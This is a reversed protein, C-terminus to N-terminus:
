LLFDGSSLVQGALGALVVEMDAIGDGNLDAQLLLNAGSTMYRMEAAGSAHFATTGIFAFAQDGPTLPDTDIAAFALKDTGIQFDTIRDAAAGIGSHSAAQFRFTDAGQGGTLIDAGNAGIIKDAGNGGIITDAQAGGRIQDDGDGGDIVNIADRHGKIVDGFQSGNIVLTLATGNALLLSGAAFELSSSNLSITITGQGSIVTGHDVFGSYDLPRLYLNAGANLYVAEVDTFSYYGALGNIIATDFGTGGDAVGGSRLVLTDNGAGGYLYQLYTPGDILTDDGDGGYYHGIFEGGTITDNGTGGYVTAGPNPYYSSSGALSFTQGANALTVQLGAHMVGTLSVSANDALTFKGWLAVVSNLQTTTLRTNWQPSYLQEISVLTVGTLDYSGTNHDLPDSLDLTDVGVGGDYIEGAVLDTNTGVTLWDDGNGGHLEDRGANGYLQDFSDGGFITDDGDGGYIADYAAGGYITENGTGGYVVNRADGLRIVSNGNGGTVVTDYNPDFTAGTLDLTTVTQDFTIDALRLRVGSLAAVGNGIVRFSGAVETFQNLEAATIRVGSVSLNEIGSVNLLGFTADAGDESLIALLDIGPGGIITDHIGAPGDLAFTYQITDDGSGGNLTDLGHGGVLTDNGFNGNLTDNGLGGILAEASSGGNITVGNDGAYIGINAGNVGSFSFSTIGPALFLQTDDGLTVPGLTVAGSGLLSFYGQAFVFSGLQAVSVGVGQPSADTILAEVRTLSL